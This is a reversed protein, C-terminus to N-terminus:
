DTPGVSRRRARYSLVAVGAAILGGAFLFTGALASDAQFAAVGAILGAAASLGLFLDFVVPFHRLIWHQFLQVLIEALIQM